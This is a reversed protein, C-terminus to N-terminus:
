GFSQQAFIEGKFKVISGAEYLLEQVITVRLCKKPWDTFRILENAIARFKVSGFLHGQVCEHTSKQHSWPTLNSRKHPSAKSFPYLPWPDWPLDINLSNAKLFASDLESWASSILSSTFSEALLTGRFPSSTMMEQNLILVHPWLSPYKWSILCQPRGVLSFRSWSARVTRGELASDEFSWILSKRHTQSFNNEAWWLCTKPVQDGSCTETWSQYRGKGFKLSGFFYQILTFRSEPPFSM